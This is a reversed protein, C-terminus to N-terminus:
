ILTLFGEWSDSLVRFHPAWPALSSVLVIRGHDLPAHSSTEHKVLQIAVQRRAGPIESLLPVYLVNKQGRTDQHRLVLKMATIIDLTSLLRAGLYMGRGRSALLDGTDKEGNHVRLSAVISYPLKWPSLLDKLRQLQSEEVPGRFSVRTLFAELKSWKVRLRKLALIEARERNVTAYLPQIARYWQRCTTDATVWDEQKLFVFVRRIVEDPFTQVNPSDKVSIRLPPHRELQLIKGCPTRIRLM